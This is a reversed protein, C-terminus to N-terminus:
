YELSTIRDIKTHNTRYSLTNGKTYERLLSTNLAEKSHYM